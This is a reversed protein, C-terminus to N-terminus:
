CGEKETCTKASNLVQLTERFKNITEQKMDDTLVQYADTQKNSIGTTMSVAKGNVVSVINPAYIRKTNTNIKQGNKNTLTYDDLVDKLYTVLQGYEASGSKTEKISGDEAIELTNRINQINVYYITGVNEYKSAEILEPLVSRCWPCTPFGFYIAFTEKNEIKKLISSPNVYVFPNNESITINRIAKDNITQNNYEEYEEKFVLADSRGNDKNFLNPRNEFLFSGVIMLFICIVGIGVVKVTSNMKKM